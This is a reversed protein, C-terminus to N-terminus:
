IASLPMGATAFGSNLSDRLAIIHYPFFLFARLNAQYWLLLSFLDRISAAPEECTCLPRGFLSPMSLCM